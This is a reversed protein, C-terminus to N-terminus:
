VGFRKKKTNVSQTITPSEIFQLLTKRISSLQTEVSMQVQQLQGVCDENVKRQITQAARQSSFTGVIISPITGLLICTVAIKKLSDSKMFSM